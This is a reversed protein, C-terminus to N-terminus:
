ILDGSIVWTDTAQKRLSLASYQVRTSVLGGPSRLTVGGAAAVTVQGAGAQWVEIVTGVPFAVSANTPVTLTIAGANSCEIVKGADSLVLTYTTGSQANATIATFRADDGAAVTGATTGVALVAAGGLGLTTRQASADADDVIARGAATFTALAATGSGTFYPLRDAASVLGALAALEADFAQVNTGIALGLNTRATAANALDSLNNAILLFTGATVLGASDTLGALIDTGDCMVGLRSGQTVAVGAGAATKVTLTFAGTTANWITWERGADAPLIVNINGTLIGILKLFNQAGENATLTVNASGAVSKSFFGRVNVALDVLKTALRRGAPTNVATIGAGDAVVQRIMFHADSPPTETLTHTLTLAYTDLGTRPSAPAATRTIVGWLYSTQSAPISSYDANAALTFVYGEAFFKAGSAVRVTFAAPTTVTDGSLVGPGIIQNLYDELQTRLQTDRELSYSDAYSTRQRALTSV